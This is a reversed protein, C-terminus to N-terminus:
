GPMFLRRDLESLTLWAMRTEAVRLLEEIALAIPTSREVDLLWRDPYYRAYNSAMFLAVYMYGFENLPRPACWFRTEDATWSVAPPIIFGTERGMPETQQQASTKFEFAGGFNLEKFSVREHLSPHIRVNEFFTGHLESPHIVISFTSNNTNPDREATVRARLLESPIDQAQLHDRMGPTNRLCDLMTLGGAPLPMLRDDLAGALIEIREVRTGLRPGDYAKGAIPMERCTQHWLEFTGSRHNSSITLPRASMKSAAETLTAKEADASAECEFILGHHRHKERARDLSSDGSGKFLVEALALSMISYYMLNPRTALSVVEAAQFYERAQMLCYRLQRAQKKANQNGRADLKHLTKIRDAVYAINQFRQLGAWGADSTFHSLTTCADIIM